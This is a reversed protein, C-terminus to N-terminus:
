KKDKLVMRSSTSVRVIAQMSSLQVDAMKLKNETHRELAYLQNKIKEKDQSQDTVFSKLLKLTEEVTSLRDDAEDVQEELDGFMEIVEDERSQGIEYIKRFQERIRNEIKRLRNEDIKTVYRSHYEPKHITEVKTEIKTEVKEIVKEPEPKTQQNIQANLVENLKRGMLNAGLKLGRKTPSGPESEGQTRHGGMERLRRQAIGM